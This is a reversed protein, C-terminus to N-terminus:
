TRYVLKKSCNRSGLNWHNPNEGREILNKRRLEVMLEWEQPTLGKTPLKNAMHLWLNKESHTM